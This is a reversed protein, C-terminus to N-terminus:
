PTNEECVRNLFFTRFAPGDVATVVRMNPPMSPDPITRIVGDQREVRVHMDEVSVFRQDFAVTLALPDHLYSRGFEAPLGINGFLNQFVPVWIDVAEALLRALPAAAQRLSSRDEDTLWISYTIEAPVMTIPVGSAFVIEAADIDAGLNHELRLQMQYPIDVGVGVREPYISGGMVIVREISDVLSPDKQLVMALNTQPGITVITPKSPAERIWKPLLEVASVSEYPLGDDDSDLIGQGEHGMMLGPNDGKLTPGLGAAIPIGPKGAVNLVKRAIRARLNTDGAVTSVGLLEMELSRAALGLALADDVDTGVDTDIIIPITTM